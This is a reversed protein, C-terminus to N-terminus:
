HDGWLDKYNAFKQLTKDYRTPELLPLALKLVQNAIASTHRVYLDLPILETRLHLKPDYNLGNSCSWKFGNAVAWNFVDRMTYHYLHLDLAVAYDLGLYEDYINEGHLMCLNFAVVRGEQRWVFFRARDPMRRGLEALYDKSLKEFHLKSRGYVQLYLPYLEDVIASVDTMVTMEIAPAHAAARLKRRIDKRAMRSVHRKLFDEFDKYALSLRTMPLSPARTFGHRAFPAMLARYRAPFEKMVVLQAGLARAQGRLGAALLEAGARREDDAAGALHGEGAACGVMLTRMRMFRPWRRRIAAVTREMRGGLGTLLDQDLVFFPQIAWVEGREDHLLFYRFDFDGTVTRDVLEYYRRDKREHAFAHAWQPQDALEALTVAQLRGSAPPPIDRGTREPFPKAARGGQSGGTPAQARWWAGRPNGGLTDAM